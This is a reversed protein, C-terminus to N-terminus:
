DPLCAMPASTSVVDSGMPIPAAHGDVKRGLLTDAMMSGKGKLDVPYPASFDYV